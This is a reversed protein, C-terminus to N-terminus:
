NFHDFIGHPYFLYTTQYAFTSQVIAFEVTYNKHYESLGNVTILSTDMVNQVTNLFPTQCLNFLLNHYNHTLNHVPTYCKITKFRIYIVYRVYAKSM